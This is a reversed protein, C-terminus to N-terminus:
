QVIYITNADPQAPMAAVVEIKLGATTSTVVQPKNKIYDKATNDSQDWDSQIQADPITPKNLIQSKGSNSNWDANVQEAPITPKNKIYDKATNDSQEWDSQIQAAPISPKNNLDNYSGSTAVTALSPKNLIESVGSSSNWDSNVQAAPITPKNM